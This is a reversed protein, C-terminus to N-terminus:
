NSPYKVRAGSSTDDFVSYNINSSNEEFDFFVQGIAVYGDHLELTNLVVLRIPGCMCYLFEFRTRARGRIFSRSGIEINKNRHDCSGDQSNCKFYICYFM